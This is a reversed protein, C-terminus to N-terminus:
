GWRPSCRTARHAFSDRFSGGCSEGNANELEVGDIIAHTEVPFETSPKM